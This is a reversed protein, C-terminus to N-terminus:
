GKFRIIVKNISQLFFALDVVDDYYDTNIGLSDNVELVGFLLNSWELMKLM